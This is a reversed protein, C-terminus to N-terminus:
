LKTQVDKFTLYLYTFHTHSLQIGKNDKDQQLSENLKVLIQMTMDFLRRLFSKKKELYEVINNPFNKVIIKNFDDSSDDFRAHSFLVEINESGISRLANFQNPDEFYLLYFCFIHFLYIASDYNEKNCKSEWTRVCREPSFISCFNNFKNIAKIFKRPNVCLENVKYKKLLDVTKYVDPHFLNVDLLCITNNHLEISDDFIKEIFWTADEINFKTGYGMQIYKAIAFKDIGVVFIAKDSILLKKIAFLIRLAHEPRCRDIDDILFVIKDWSFLDCVNQILEQFDNEIELLHEIEEFLKDKNQEYLKLASVSYDSLKGAGLLSGLANVSVYGLSFSIKKIKEVLEDNIKSKAEDIQFRDSKLFNKFHWFLLVLLDSVDEYKWTEFLDVVCVKEKFESKNFKDKLFNLATTKGTGWEGFIAYLKNTDNYVIMQKLYEINELIKFSDENCKIKPLHSLVNNM